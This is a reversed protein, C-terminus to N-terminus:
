RYQKAMDMQIMGTCCARKNLLVRLDLYVHMLDGHRVHAIWSPQQLTGPPDIAILQFNLPALNRWYGGLIEVGEGIAIVDMQAMSLKDDSVGRAVRRVVDTIEVHISPDRKDPIGHAYPNGALWVNKRPRRRRFDVDLM